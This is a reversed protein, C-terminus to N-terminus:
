PIHLQSDKLQELEIKTKLLESKFFASSSKTSLEKLSSLNAELNEIMDHNLFISLFGEKGKFADAANQLLKKSLAFDNKDFAEEAQNLSSILDKYLLETYFFGGWALGIIIAMIILSVVFRKM